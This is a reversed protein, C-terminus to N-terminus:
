RLMSAIIEQMKDRTIPRYENTDLFMKSNIRGPIVRHATLELRMRGLDIEFKMLIGRINKYPTNFNPHKISFEDSYAVQFTRKERTDTIWSRLCPVGAMITTDQTDKIQFVSEPNFFVPTEEKKGDYRYKNNFFKVTSVHTHRLMDTTNTISFVGMMDEIKYSAYNKNFLLIMKRPLFQMPLDSSDSSYAIDYEIIGEYIKNLDRENQCATFILVFTFLIVRTM